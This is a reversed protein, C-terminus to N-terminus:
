ALYQFFIQVKKDPPRPKTAEGKKNYKINIPAQKKKM